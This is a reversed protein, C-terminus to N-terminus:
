RTTSASSTPSRPATTCARTPAYRSRGRSRPSRRTTPPRCRSSSSPSAPPPVPRSIPPSIRRRELRRQRRRDARRRAGGQARRRHARRRGRRRAQGQPAPAGGRGRGGSGHEAADRAFDYLRHPAAAAARAGPLCLGPPRRAQGRSRHLRLRARQARRGGAARAPAHERDLGRAVEDALGELAAVVGAVTEDYRPYPVCEGRGRLTGDSLEAVM